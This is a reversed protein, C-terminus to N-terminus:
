LHLAVLIFIGGIHISLCLNFCFCFSCGNLAEGVHPGYMYLWGILCSPHFLSSCASLSGCTSREQSVCCSYLLYLPSHWCCVVSSLVPGGNFSDSFSSSSSSPAQSGM